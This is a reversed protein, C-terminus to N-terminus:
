VIVANEFVPEECREQALPVKPCAAIGFNEIDLICAYYGDVCLDSLASTTVKKLRQMM